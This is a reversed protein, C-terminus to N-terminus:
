KAHAIINLVEMNKKLELNINEKENILILKEPDGNTESCYFFIDSIRIIKLLTMDKRNEKNHHSQIVSAIVEPLRWKKAIIYGIEQHDTGFLEREAMDIEKEDSLADQILMHYDKIESYFVVKGIDHLLAGMYAVQPNDDLTKEALIRASTAVFLSHKWFMFLDKFRLKDKLGDMLMLCLLINKAEELGINILAQHLDYLPYGRNYYASNAISLIKASLGPDQNLIKYIDNISSNPDTILFIIRDILCRLSPAIKLEFAKDFLRQQVSKDFEIDKM